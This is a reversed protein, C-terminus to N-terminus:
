TIHGKTILISRWAYMVCKQFWRAIIHWRIVLKLNQSEYLFKWDELGIHLTWYVKVLYVSIHVCWFQINVKQDNRFNWFRGVRCYICVRMCGVNVVFLIHLPIHWCFLSKVYNLFLIVFKEANINIKPFSSVFSIKKEFM